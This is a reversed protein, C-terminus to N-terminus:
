NTSCWLPMTPTLPEFGRPEVLEVPQVFNTLAAGNAGNIANKETTKPLETQVSISAKCGMKESKQSAPLSPVLKELEAFLPLSMADTYTKATLRMDSHRMLEMAVRPSIRAKALMTAFTHRLAHFDMHRGHEDLRKVGCVALDKLLMETTPVGRRFVKGTLTTQQSRWEKLRRALEPM